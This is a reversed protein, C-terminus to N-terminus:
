FTFATIGGRKAEEDKGALKIRKLALIKNNPALVKYVKCSGGKGVCELVKYKTSNVWVIPENTTTTTTPPPPPRTSAAAEARESRVAKEM